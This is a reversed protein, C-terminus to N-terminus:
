PTCLFSISYLKGFLVSVLLTINSCRVFAVCLVVSNHNAIQRFHFFNITGVCFSAIIIKNSVFISSCLFISRGRAVLCALPMRCHINLFLLEAQLPIPPIANSSCFFVMCISYNFLARAFLSNQNPRFLAIKHMSTTATRVKSLVSCKSLTNTESERERHANDIRFLLLHNQQAVNCDSVVGGGGGDIDNNSSNGNM